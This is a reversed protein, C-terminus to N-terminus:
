RRVPLATVRGGHRPRVVEAPGAQEVVLPVPVEREGAAGPLPIAAPRDAPAAAVAVPRATERAAAHRPPLDAAGVGREHAELRNRVGVLECRIAEFLPEVDHRM